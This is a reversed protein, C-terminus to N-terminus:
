AAEWQGWGLGAGLSESLARVPLTPHKLAYARSENRSTRRRSSSTRSGRSSNGGEKKGIHSYSTTLLTRVLDCAVTGMRDVIMGKELPTCIM